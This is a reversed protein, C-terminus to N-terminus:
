IEQQKYIGFQSALAASEEFCEATFYQLPGLERNGDMECGNKASAEEVTKSPCPGKPVYLSYYWAKFHELM